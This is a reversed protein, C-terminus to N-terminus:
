EEKLVIEIKEPKGEFKLTTVMGMIVNYFITSAFPNLGIKQDNIKLTINKKEVAM